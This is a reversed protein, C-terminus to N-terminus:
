KQDSKIGQALKQTEKAMTDMAKSVEDRVWGSGQILKASVLQAEKTAAASEARAEIGMWKQAKELHNAAAKMEYGANIYDNKALKEAANLYHTQALANQARSFVNQLKASGTVSGNKVDRAVAELEDISASLIKKGDVTARNRELQLYEEGKRINMAAAKWDKKVLTEAAALFHRQPAETVPYWEADQAYIWLQEADANYAKILIPDLQQISNIKGEKMNKSERELEEAATKIQAISEKPVLSEQSEMFEAGKRMELAAARRDKKLYNRRAAQLHTGLEDFVPIMLEDDEVIWQDPSFSFAAMGSRFAQNQDKLARINSKKEVAFINGGIGMVLVIIVWSMWKKEKM